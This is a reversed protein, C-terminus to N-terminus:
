DRILIKPDSFFGSPVKDGLASDAYYIIGFEKNADSHHLITGNWGVAFVDTGSSGWIGNFNTATGSSMPSWASGNYHLIAGSEGVAFVNTGSSGWGGRL